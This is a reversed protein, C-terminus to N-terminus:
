NLKVFDLLHVDSFSRMSRVITAAHYDHAELRRREMLQDFFLVSVVPSTSVFSYSMKEFFSDSFLFSTLSEVDIGVPNHITDLETRPIASIDKAVKIIITCFNDGVSTTENTPRRKTYVKTWDDIMLTVLYNNEIADKVVDNFLNSSNKSFHSIERKVSRSCVTTGLMRQTLVKM